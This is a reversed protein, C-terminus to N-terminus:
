DISFRPVGGVNVDSVRGAAPFFPSGDPRVVRCTLFILLTRKKARTYRSQFFRGVLPLDGLIPIKDNLIDVQDDVVGGIVVTAGDAITLTTKIDRKDFIPKKMREIAGDSSVSDYTTYGVFTVVQPNFDELTITQREVDVTIPNIRMTIGTPEPDGFEPMPGIRTYISYENSGNNTGGPSSITEESDAYEDAYPREETMEIFVEQNQLTLIRPSALTDSSDLQNTAFVSAQYSLNGDRASGSVVFLADTGSNRMMGTLAEDFSLRHSAGFDGIAGTGYPANAANYSLMYDFGLEQLDNQDVEIFKAILEIQPEPKNLVTDVLLQLSRLNEPTNTVILRSVRPDYIATAGEPFPIGSLYQKLEEPDEGGSALHGLSSPDLPIFETEMDDLAVSEPAMVVAHPEIRYKLKAAGALQQIAQLLTTNDSTFFTIKPSNDPAEGSLVGDVAEVAEVAVLGLDGEGEAAPVGTGAAAAARKAAAAAKEEESVFSRLFINVGEKEPDNRRSEDQLYKVIRAVSVNEFDVKRISIAELKEQLPSKQQEQKRVAEPLANSSVVEDEHRFPGAWKWELETIAKKHQVANRLDGEKAIKRYVARLNHLAESHYPDMLIIEQFKRVSKEYEGIRFLERGQKMLVGIRYEQTGKDPILQETGGRERLDAASRRKEMNDIRAQLVKKGEPYYEMAEKCLAIAEDFRLSAALEDARLIADQARYYYCKGILDRCFDIRSKFSETGLAVFQKEAQQYIKVAELYHVAANDYRGAAFEVNGERVRDEGRKLTQEARVEIATKNVVERNIVNQQSPTPVVPLASEEAMAVGGVLTAALTMWQINWKKAM